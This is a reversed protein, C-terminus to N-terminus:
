RGGESENGGGGEDGSVWEFDCWEPFGVSASEATDDLVDENLECECECGKTCTGGEGVSVDDLM